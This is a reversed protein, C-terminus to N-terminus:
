GTPRNMELITRAGSMRAYRCKRHDDIGGYQRITYYHAKM